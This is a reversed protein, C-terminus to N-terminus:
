GTGSGQALQQHFPKKHDGVGEGVPSDCAGAASPAVLHSREASCSAGQFREQCLMVDLPLHAAPEFKDGADVALHNATAKRLLRDKVRPAQPNNHRSLPGAVPNQRHDMSVKFGDESLQVIIDSGWFPIAVLRQVCHHPVAGAPAILDLDACRQHVSGGHASAGGM